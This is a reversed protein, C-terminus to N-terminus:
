KEFYSKLINWMARLEIWVDRRVCFTCRLDSESAKAARLSSTFHCCGSCQGIFTLSPLPTLLFHLLYNVGNSLSELLFAPLLNIYSLRFLIEAFMRCFSEVETDSLVYLLATLVLQSSRGASCIQRHQSCSPVHAIIVFCQQGSLRGLGLPFYHIWVHVM